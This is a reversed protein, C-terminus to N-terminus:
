PYRYECGYGYSDELSDSSSFVDSSVFSVVVAFPGVNDDDDLSSGGGEVVNVLVFATM